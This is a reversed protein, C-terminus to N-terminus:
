AATDECLKDFPLSCVSISDFSDFSDFSHYSSTNPLHNLLSIFRMRSNDDYESYGISTNFEYM